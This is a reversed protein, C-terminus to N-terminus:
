GRRTTGVMASSSPSSLPAMEIWRRQSNQVVSELPPIIM